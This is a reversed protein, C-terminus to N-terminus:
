EFNNLSIYNKARNKEEPVEFDSDFADAAYDEGEPEYESDVEPQGAEPDEYEPDGIAGANGGEVPEELYDYETKPAGNGENHPSSGSGAVPAAAHLKSQKRFKKANRFIGEDCNYMRKLKLIDLETLEDGGLESNHVNDM